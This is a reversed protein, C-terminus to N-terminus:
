NKILKKSLTSNGQKIRLIYVGTSLQETNITSSNTIVKSLVHKGLVNFMDIQTEIQSNLKINLSNKVPNPYISIAEISNEPLSLSSYCTWSLNDMGVRADGSNNDEIVVTVNGDVNIDTITTTQVTDSYPITGALNGNVMVNLTGDSGSFIRQTTITFSGIGGSLTPSTLSAGDTTGRYDILIARSGEITQDTRAETANWTGSDGTWTRDTYQSSNAPMDEFDESACEDGNAGAETTTGNVSNSQSSENGAADKAIVYFSYTTEPTLNVVTASNTTVTMNYVGDVYVDYATVGINDTSATWDLSITTSGENTVMLNTPTSPAETDPTINWIMEVYEPHDVFPNRNSQHNYYINNNRDIEKQSVPDMQHWTLLISLFPDDLVKDSSGDFMAYSGWSSIQDEYRTVFYFYIRAIDGKFEDIPEFVTNTYGASYGSNLNGGLKSGNQTPNSIGEQSVLQSNDVVGFPYNNRFGNVRGDTPLLHHADSRMPTNQSFVSQPIVHEKNYCDGEGSYNGCEDSVPSFTYPDSGTPNESYPDLITNSGTEYYNDLDYSAIFGDMANYGQDNHNDIINHLQTKLTYGTGTASDYYGAPIQAFAATSFILTAILTYFQKM